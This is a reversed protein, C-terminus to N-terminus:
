LPLGVETSGGCHTPWQYLDGLRREDAEEGWCRMREQELVSKVQREPDRLLHETITVGQLQLSNGLFISSCVGALGNYGPNSNCFSIDSKSYITLAKRESSACNSKINPSIQQILLM